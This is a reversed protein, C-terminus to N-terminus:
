TKLEVGRKCAALVLCWRFVIQRICVCIATFPKCMNHPQVFRNSVCVECRMCVRCQVCCVTCHLGYVTCQLIYVKCKVVTRHVTTCHPKLDATCGATLWCGCAKSQGIIENYLATQVRCDVCKQTCDVCHLTCHTDLSYLTCLAIHVPCLVNCIQFTCKIIHLICHTNYM